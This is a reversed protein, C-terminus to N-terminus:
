DADDPVATADDQTAAPDNQTVPQDELGALFVM